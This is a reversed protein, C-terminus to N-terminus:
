GTSPVGRCFTTGEGEDKGTGGDIYSSYDGTADTHWIGVTAARIPDCGGDLVRLGLRVARGPHGETIDRRELPELSPFPGAAMEPILICTSLGAFASPGLPVEPDDALTTAPAEGTGDDSPAATTDASGASPETAPPSTSGSGTAADTPDAGEGEEGGSCGTAAWALGAASAALLSRRDIGM